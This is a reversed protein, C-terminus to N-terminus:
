EYRWGSWEPMKRMRARVVRIVSIRHLCSKDELNLEELWSIVILWKSRCREETVMTMVM